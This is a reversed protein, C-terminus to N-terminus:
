IRSVQGADVSGIELEECSEVTGREPGRDAIARRDSGSEGMQPIHSGHLRYGPEVSRDGPVDTPGVQPDTGALLWRYELSREAALVCALITDVEDLTAECIRGIRMLRDHVGLRGLFETHVESRHDPEAEVRIRLFAEDIRGM